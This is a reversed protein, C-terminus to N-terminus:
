SNEFDKNIVKYIRKLIMFLNTLMVFSMYYIILGCLWYFQQAFLEIFCFILILISILIEFMISYYTDKLLNLSLKADGANYSQNSRVRGRMDLILTLLTFFMSTLISVIIALLNIVDSDINRIMLLAIAVLLPVCFYLFISVLSIKGSSKRFCGIHKHIIEFYNLYKQNFVFRGVLLVFTAVILMGYPSILHKVLNNIVNM